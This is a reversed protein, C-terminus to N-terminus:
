SSTKKETAKKDSIALDVMSRLIIRAQTTTDAASNIANHKPISCVGEWRAKGSAHSQFTVLLL